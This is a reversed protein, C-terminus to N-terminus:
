WSCLALATALKGNKIMEMNFFQSLDETAAFLGDIAKLTLARTRFTHWIRQRYCLVVTGVLASKVFFALATGYRIMGLQDTAPKGNLHSYFFHHGLAALVGAVYLVAILAPTLWHVHWQALEGARRDVLAQADADRTRHASLSGLTGTTFLSSAGSSKLRPERSSNQGPIPAYQDNQTAGMYPSEPPSRFSVRGPSADRHQDISPGRSMTSLEVPDEFPDYPALHADPSPGRSSYPSPRSQSAM